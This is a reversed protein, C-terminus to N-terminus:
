PNVGLIQGQSQGGTPQPAGPQGANGGPQAQALNPNLNPDDAGIPVSEGIMQLRQSIENIQHNLIEISGKANIEAMKMEAQVKLKMIEIREDHELQMKKNNTEIQKQEIIQTKENLHQSLTQIMQQMQSMAAKAQPPLDQAKGDDQLAPPLMKRLRDAM